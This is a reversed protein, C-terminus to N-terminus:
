GELPRTLWCLPPSWLERNNRHDNTMPLAANRHPCASTRWCQSSSSWLFPSVPTQWTVRSTNSGMELQLLALNGLLGSGEARVSIDDGYERLGDDRAEKEGETQSVANQWYNSKAQLAKTLRQSRTVGRLDSQISDSGALWKLSAPPTFRKWGSQCSGRTVRLGVWQSCTHSCNITAQRTLLQVESETISKFHSNHPQSSKM